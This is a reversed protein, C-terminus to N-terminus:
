DSITLTGPEVDVSQGSDQFVEARVDDQERMYYRVSVRLHTLCPTKVALSDMQGVPEGNVTIRLAKNTPTGSLLDISARLGREGEENALVAAVTQWEGHPIKM